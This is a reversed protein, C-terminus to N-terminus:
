RSRLKQGMTYSGGNGGKTTKGGHALLGSEKVGCNRKAGMNECRANGERNTRIRIKGM